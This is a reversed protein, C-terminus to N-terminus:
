KAALDLFAAVIMALALITVLWRLTPYGYRINFPRGQDFMGGYYKKETYVQHILNLVLAFIFLPIASTDKAIFYAVPIGALLILDLVVYYVKKM